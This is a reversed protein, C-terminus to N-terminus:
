KAEIVMLSKSLIKYSIPKDLMRQIRGLKSEIEESDFGTFKSMVYRQMGAGFPLDWSEPLMALSRLALDTAFSRIKEQVALTKIGPMRTEAIEADAERMTELMAEFSDQTFNAMLSTIEPSPAWRGTESLTRDKVSPFSEQTLQEDVNTINGSNQSSAILAIVEEETHCTRSCQAPLFSMSHQTDEFPVYNIVLKGAIAAEVGTTCGHHILAVCSLLWPPVAGERVVFVNAIESFIDKYFEIDESPHPRLIFNLDGFESSLRHVLCVFSGLLTNMAAWARVKQLRMQQDGPDVGLARFLLHKVGMPYNALAFSTNILVYNGYQKKIAGMEPAYFDKYPETFLQFRPHGTTRIRAARALDLSTYYDRQFDGWTCLYDNASLKAPNVQQKLVSRWFEEGQLWIAGEEHFQVLTFGNKKLRDYLRLDSSFNDEDRNRKALTRHGHELINKGVYLGGFIKKSPLRDIVSFHGLYIRRDWTAFMTALFLRYDLERSMTEIPFLINTM